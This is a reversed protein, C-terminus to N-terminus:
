GVIKPLWLTNGVDEIGSMVTDALRPGRTASSGITCPCCLHGQGVRYPYYVQVLLFGQVVVFSVGILWSPRFSRSPLTEFHRQPPNRLPVEPPAESRSRRSM